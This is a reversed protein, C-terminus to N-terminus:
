PLSTHLLFTYKVADVGGREPENLLAAIVVSPKAFEFSETSGNKRVVEAVQLRLSESAADSDSLLLVAYPM